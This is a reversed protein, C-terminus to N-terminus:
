RPLTRKAAPDCDDTVSLTASLRMVAQVIPNQQPAALALNTAARQGYQGGPTYWTGVKTKQGALLREISEALSHRDFLGSRM